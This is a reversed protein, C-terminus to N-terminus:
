FTSEIIRGKEAIETQNEIYEKSIANYKISM